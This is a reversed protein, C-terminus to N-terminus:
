PMARPSVDLSIPDCNLMLARVTSVWRAASMRLSSTREIASNVWSAIRSPNTSPGTHTAVRSEPGYTATQSCMTHGASGGQTSRCLWGGAVSRISRLDSRGQYKAAHTEGHESNGHANGRESSRRQEARLHDLGGWPQWQDSGVAGPCVGRTGSRYRH